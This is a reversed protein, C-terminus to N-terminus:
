RKELPEFIIDASLRMLRPIQSASVNELFLVPAVDRHHAIFVQCNKNGSIVGEAAEDIPTDRSQEGSKM